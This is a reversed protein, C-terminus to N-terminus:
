SNATRRADTEAARRRASARLDPSRLYESIASFADAGSLERLWMRKEAATLTRTAIFHWLAALPTAFVLLASLILMATNPTEFGLALTLVLGALGLLSLAGSVGVLWRPVTALASNM